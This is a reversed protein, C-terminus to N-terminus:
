VLDRWGIKGTRRWMVIVYVLYAAALAPVFGQYIGIAFAAPLAALLRWAGPLRVFLFLGLAVCLLGFGIGYNITSFTYIYAMSPFALAVAAALSQEWGATVGWASLLLLLAAAEFLLALFLPVFPVVTHPLLVLNLLYMAWRGQAVWQLIPGAYTAHV